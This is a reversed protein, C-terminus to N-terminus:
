ARSFPRCAAPPLCAPLLHTPPPRGPNYPLSVYGCSTLIWFRGSSGHTSQGGVESLPCGAAAFHLVLLRNPHCALLHQLDAASQVQLRACPRCPHIVTLHMPTAHRPLSGSQALPLQWCIAPFGVQLVRPAPPALPPPAGAPHNATLQRSFGPLAVIHGRPPDTELGGRGPLAAAGPQGLQGSATAAPFPAAASSSARAIKKPSSSHPVPVQRLGLPAAAPTLM